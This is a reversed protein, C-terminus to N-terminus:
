GLPAAIYPVSGRGTNREEIIEHGGITDGRAEAQAQQSAASAKRRERDDWERAHVVRRHRQLHADSTFQATCGDTGCPEPEPGDYRTTWRTYDGFLIHDNPGGAPRILQGRQYERGMYTFDNKVTFWEIRKKAM